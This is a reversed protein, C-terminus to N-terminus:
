DIKNEAYILILGLCVSVGKNDIEPNEIQLWCPGMINRKLVLLEFVSTNTGFIQAINPSKAQDTDSARYVYVNCTTYILFFPAFM